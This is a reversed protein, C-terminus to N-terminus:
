KANKKGKYVQKGHDWPVYNHKWMHIIQRKMTLTFLVIFYILLIPWFVPVDFASSLTMLLSTITTQKHPLLPGDNEADIQPSLFGIFLNLLYIGLGYTVIHFANILFVRVLYLTLLALTVGWRGYVHITSKDLLYQWKRKISVCVRAIFPPETLSRSDGGEM